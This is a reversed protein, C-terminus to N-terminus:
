RRDYAESFFKFIHSFRTRWFDPHHGGRGNHDAGPIIGGETYLNKAQLLAIIDLTAQKTGSLVFELIDNEGIELFFDPAGGDSNMPMQKALCLPNNAALSDRDLIVRNRVEIM